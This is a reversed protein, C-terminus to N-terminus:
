MVYGLHFIPLYMAIVLGGVIICLVLMMAPEILQTIREVTYNITHEYYDALERLMKELYGAEEGLLIMKVVRSPFMNVQSCAIGFSKGALIQKKIQLIAYEYPFNGSVRATAELAQFVPLGSQLMLALTSFCRSFISAKILKGLLPTSLLAQQVNLKFKDSYIWLIRFSIIILLSFIGILICHHNIWNAIAIIMRTFLPLDTNLSHYLDAFQPLVFMLMAMIVLGTVILVFLPYYLAKKIKRKFDRMKERYLFIKELVVGLTGSQEGAYILSLDAQDITGQSQLADSLLRGAAIQQKIALLFHRYHNKNASEIIITLAALLPIGASILLATEHYFDPIDQFSFKKKWHFSRQAALLIIKQEALSQRLSLLNNAFNKGQVKLGNAAIGEWRYIFWKAIINSLMM